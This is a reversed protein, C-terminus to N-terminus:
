LLSKLVEMRPDLDDTRACSCTKKNLNAGCTPCLGKCDERCLIQRPEYIFLCDAIFPSLDFQGDNASAEVTESFDYDAEVATPELCRSCPYYVTGTLRFSLEFTTENLRTLTGTLELGADDPRGSIEADVPIDEPMLHLDFSYHKKNQNLEIKM